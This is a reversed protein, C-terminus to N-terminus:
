PLRMSVSGPPWCRGSTSAHQRERYHPGIDVMLSSAWQRERDHPDVTAMLPVQQRERPVLVLSQLKCGCTPAGQVLPSCGCCSNHVPLTGRLAFSHWIAIAVQFRNLMWHYSYWSTWKTWNIQITDRAAPLFFFLMYAGSPSGLM